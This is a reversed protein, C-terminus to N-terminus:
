PKTATDAPSHTEVLELAYWNIRRTCFMVLALAGFLAATGAILAYDQSKLVFYLYGYTAALGGGIVLSRWGARLFSRAYLAVMLTCVTAAAGYARGTPWFESLALFALFFLSLAAGVLAYHLPHIKLAATIEFLFFVAFILVFFLLGYKQAREAMSYGDVPQAFRVGFGAGEIKKAMEANNVLRNTWSQPFGRSFYSSQWEASFGDTGVNRIKPLAAGTFSPDPWSSRLTATTIKGVPSFDLRKSGQVAMEFAFKLRTAPTAGAAKASLPLIAGPISESPEFASPLGGEGVWPGVSRVGRLDSVGVYVRADQWDIRDAAIGAAAFDPLFHGTLTVQAGYVVTDYIGRSRLDPTAEGNVTLVEPLFYATAPALETEEVSSVKGNVVKSRVVQTAYAYPVALVPGTLLQQRGWTSAVAEAAEAQYRQREELVGRTMALPVHLLAILLCIAALKAFVSLRRKAPTPILPPQATNM